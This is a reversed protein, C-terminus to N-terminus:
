ARDPLSHFDQLRGGVPLDELQQPGFTHAMECLAMNDGTIQRKGDVQAEHNLYKRVLACLPTPAPPSSRPLNKMDTIGRAVSIM